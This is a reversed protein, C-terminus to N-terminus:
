AVRIVGMMGAAQHELIHCHFMWDGPNDAVFAIEVRERALMLVTDQWERFRTPQGNRSIVRFAHGHLHMPHPWATMNTMAMVVTRGHEVTLMPKMVHGVSAVGNIRWVRGSRMMEMMSGMGRGMGPSGGMEREIMMSMMGGQFLVDHHLPNSLDPEPMTNPPLATPADLPRDRLPETEYVVDVLPYTLRRYFSDTVTFREGPKGMMDIVLDIRMAPGLVIRDSGLAHPDVPHGDYAIVTPEHGAFELGFIRANAANILRLRVREGRRVTFPEPARGNITITNGIRGAHSADLVWTVDRDVRIPKREEVILAGYLGRGVQEASMMHPHYWYTGADPLDFAYTFTEGPGIPKQTLHPVGDMANPLRIGHWHVTTEQPLRNEVEIALRDGQKFRLEPGPVRGNFAWVRTRPHPSGALDADAEALVLRRQGGYALRGGPLLSGVAASGVSALFTRRNISYAHQHRMPIGETSYAELM